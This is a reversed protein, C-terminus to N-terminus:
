GAGNAPRARESRIPRNHGSFGASGIAPRSRESRIPRNHPSFARAGMAPRSREFEFRFPPATRASLGRDPPSFARAGLSRTQPARANPDSRVTTRASLGRERIAPRACESRVPAPHVGASVFLLFVAGDRGTRARRPRRTRRPGRRRRRKSRWGSRSAVCSSRASSRSPWSSRASRSRTWGLLRSWAPNVQRFHGDFGAVCVPDPAHLWVREFEQRAEVLDSVDSLIGCIAYTEGDGRQQPFHTALLTATRGGIRVIHRGHIPGVKERALAASRECLEALEHPMRETATKDRWEAVPAAFLEAMARNVFLYEGALNKVYVASPSSDLVARFRVESERVAQEAQQREIAVGALRAAEVLPAAELAGPGTSPSGVAQRVLQEAGSLIAYTVRDFRGATRNYLAFTGIAAGKEQGPVNGSSLIPVSVCSRLDHSLALDRYDDWLPDTAIDTVTVTDRRFAATGCSGAKPGIPVGDVAHNYEAPLSPGAGFRLRNTARDVILVSCLSGPLQEEVLRVVEELIMRLEAGAAILELVHNYATLAWESRKRATIDQITGVVAVVEGLPACEVQAVNALWRIGRDPRLIRFEGAFPMRREIAEVFQAQMAPRDNPHMMRFWAAPTGDFTTIGFISNLETSLHIRMQALEVTWVGMHAATLAMETRRSESALALEALKRATIDYHAVLAGGGLSKLPTVHMSFWRVEAPSDCPYELAFSERTGRLVAEIGDAATNAEDAKAGRCSRCVGLYDVGPGTNDAPRGTACNQISFRQWAQNVERIHGDPSLVAVHASMANLIDEAYRRTPGPSEEGPVEGKPPSVPEADPRPPLNPM